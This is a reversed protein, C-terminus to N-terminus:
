ECGSVETINIKEGSFMRDRLTEVGRARAQLLSWPAYLEFMLNLKITSNSTESVSRNQCDRVLYYDSYKRSPPPPHQEETDPGYFPPRLLSTTEIPLYLYM